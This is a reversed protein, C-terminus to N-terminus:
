PANWEHNSRNSPCNSRALCATRANWFKRCSRSCCFGHGGICLGPRIYRRKQFGYPFICSSQNRSRGYRNNSGCNSGGYGSNRTRNLGYRGSWYGYPWAPDSRRLRRRNRGKHRRRRAHKVRFRTLPHYSYHGGLTGRRDYNGRCRGRRRRSHNRFTSSTRIGNKKSPPNPTPKIRRLPM